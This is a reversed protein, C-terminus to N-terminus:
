RAVEPTKMEVRELIPLASARLYKREAQDLQAFPAACFPDAIVGLEALLFKLAAIRPISPRSPTKLAELFGVLESQMGQATGWDGDLAARVLRVCFRPMVVAVATIAGAAGNYISTALLAGDGVFTPLSVQARRAREVLYRFWAVNGYSDKMGALTGERALDIISAPALLTKTLEPVQYLYLPLGAAHKIDRLYATAETDTYPLYYPLVASVADAGAEAATEALATALRTSTSGIQTIVVASGDGIGNRVATVVETRETATLAHFEATSGNLWVGDVGGAAAFRAQHVLSDFDVSGDAHFPTVLPPIVGTAPIARPQRPPQIVSM